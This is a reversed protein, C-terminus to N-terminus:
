VEMFRLTTQNIQTIFLFSFTIIPCFFFVFLFTKLSLIATNILPQSSFTFKFTNISIIFELNPHLIM